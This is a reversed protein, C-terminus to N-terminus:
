IRSPQGLLVDMTPLHRDLMFRCYACLLRNARAIADADDSMQQQAVARLATVTARRVRWRDPAGTDAVLGGAAAGFALTQAAEDLPGGTQADRDLVPRYGLDDIVAWQFRLLAAERGDTDALERLFAGLAAFTGDHPDHDTLMHHVLDAAYMALQYAPWHQRLHWHADTLDWETLTALEVAPRTIFIAQGAALLDVGGSFKALTSPTQRKAGKAAASVKGHGDTLLVVIQSTESWDYKRLCIAEDKITPM